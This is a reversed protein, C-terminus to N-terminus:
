SEFFSLQKNILKAKERAKTYNYTVDFALWLRNPSQVCLCIDGNDLRAFYNNANDITVRRIITFERDIEKDGDSELRGKIIRVRFDKIVKM